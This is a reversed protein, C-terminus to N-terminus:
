HLLYLELCSQVFVVRGSYQQRYTSVQLTIYSAHRIYIVLIFVLIFITHHYAKAQTGPLGIFKKRRKKKKKGKRKRRRLLQNQGGRTHKVGGHTKLASKSAAMDVNIRPSEYAINTPVRCPGSAATAPPLTSEPVVAKPRWLVRKSPPTEIPAAACFRALCCFWM